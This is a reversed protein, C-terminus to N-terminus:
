IDLIEVSDGGLTQKAVNYLEEPVRDKIEEISDFIELVYENRFNEWDWDDGREHGPNQEQWHQQHHMQHKNQRAWDRQQRAWARWDYKDAWRSWDGWNLGRRIYLVIKGKQSEYVEIVEQKGFSGFMRGWMQGFDDQVNIDIDEPTTSNFRGKALLRGRFQKESYVRKGVKVNVTRFGSVRQEQAEVFRRLAQVITASLNEGAIQQAREFIPLDADAIYITRNPMM